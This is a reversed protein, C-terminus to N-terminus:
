ELVVKSHNMLSQKYLEYEVMGQANQIQEAFVQYQDHSFSDGKRIAKLAIVAYGNPVKTIAYTFKNNAPKPMAFATELIASDIKNARRSIFGAQKWDLHYQQAIQEPTIGNQLKQQIDAALKAERAEIESAKLKNAIQKEVASLPMIKAPAYTKIRLVIAEDNAVQIVDSNNRSNLVDNSFSTERIKAMVRPDSTIDELGQTKSFSKSNKVALGLSQAAPQLSDPHEYSINALKDRLDAFQEEAQQRALTERVKNKVAEFPSISGEKISDLKLLVFGKSTKFPESVQGPKTLSKQVEAPLQNVSIWGQLADNSSLSYERVLSAFDKGKIAKQYVENAKKQVQDVDQQSANPAIPIILNELKWQAPQTYSNINDNYFKKLVDDSIAIKPMLDKISLDIYEITVQEPSQFQDQHQDYYKKIADHSIEIPQKSITDLPLMIYQINREQNILGLNDEIENPLAFSTFVLGLRPQDILLNTKVLDLFEQPSYLTTQLLNQFRELSFQGNVQLDPVSALFGDVQRSSIHYGQTQSGEKLVQVTILSQLAKDKLASETQEPLQFNRYQVQLQRRLREYAASLQGKTIEFGNVNAVVSSSEGGVLYSHIGWLAFSLILLSVIVGAIWGQTHDRISQLM